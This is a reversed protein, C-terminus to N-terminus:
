ITGGKRINKSYLVRYEKEANKGKGKEPMTILEQCSSFMM